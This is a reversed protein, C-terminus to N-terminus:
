WLWLGRAEVTVDMKNGAKFSVATSKGCPASLVDTSEPQLEGMISKGDARIRLYRSRVYDIVLKKGSALSFNKLRILTDGVTIEFSTVAAKATATVSVLADKTNGDVELAGSGGSGSLALVSKEESQWYPVYTTAFVITLPDTWNRASAINAYRECRVNRLQQGKRENVVLTGGNQAWANIKQCAANRKAIDYIHLEFSITVTGRDFYEDTWDYGDLDAIRNEDVAPKVSPYSVDLIMLNKDLSDMQVGGLAVQYRSIM